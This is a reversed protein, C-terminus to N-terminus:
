VEKTIPAIWRYYDHSDDGCKNLRITSCINDAFQLGHVDQSDKPAISIVHDYVSAAQIIDSEFKARGFRDFIVDTDTELSGLISSILTIYVSDKQVQNLKPTIKKYCSFLVSPSILSIEELMKEKVRYYNRDILTSKFEICILGKSKESIRLKKIGKKFRKYALEVSAESSSLLGAVIYYQENETEDLYLIM